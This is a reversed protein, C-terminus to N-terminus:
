FAMLWSSWQPVPTGIAKCFRNGFKTSRMFDFDLECPFKQNLRQFISHFLPHHVVEYAISPSQVEMTARQSTPRLSAFLSANRVSNNNSSRTSLMSLDLSKLSNADDALVQLALVRQVISKLISHHVQGSHLVSGICKMSWPNMIVREFTTKRTSAVSALSWRKSTSISTSAGNVAEENFSEKGRHTGPEYKKRSGM